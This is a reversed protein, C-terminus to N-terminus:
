WFTGIGEEANRKLRYYEDNNLYGMSHLYFLRDLELDIAKSKSRSNIHNKNFHMGLKSHM